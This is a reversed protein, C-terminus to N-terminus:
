ATVRLVVVLVRAEIPQDFEPLFLAGVSDLVDEARSLLRLRVRREHEFDEGRLNPFLSRAGGSRALRLRRKAGRGARWTM